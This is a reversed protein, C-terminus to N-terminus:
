ADGTSEAEGEQRLENSFGSPDLKVEKELDRASKSNSYGMLDIMTSEVKIWGTNPMLALGKSSEAKFPKVLSSLTWEQLDPFSVGDVAIV